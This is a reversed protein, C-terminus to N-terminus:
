NIHKKAKAEWDLEILFFSFDWCCNGFVYSLFPFSRYIYLSYSVLSSISGHHNEHSSTYLCFSPRRTRGHAPAGLSDGSRHFRRRRACEVGPLVGAMALGGWSSFKGRLFFLSTTHRGKGLQRFYPLLLLYLSEYGLYLFPCYPFGPKFWIFCLSFLPLETFHYFNNKFYKKHQILIINKNKLNIKIILISFYDLFIFFNFFFSFSKLVRCV